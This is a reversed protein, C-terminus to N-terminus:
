NSYGTVAWYGVGLGALWSIVMVLYCQWLHWGKIGNDKRAWGVIM